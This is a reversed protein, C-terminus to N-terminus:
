SVVGKGAPTCNSFYGAGRMEIFKAIVDENGFEM